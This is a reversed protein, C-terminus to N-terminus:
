VATVVGSPEHGLILPSEVVAEGIRGHQYYHVDSGCTGVALVKILVERPGPEPMPRDHLSIAGVGDLVAARMAREAMGGSYPPRVLTVRTRRRYENSPNLRAVPQYTPNGVAAPRTAASSASMNGPAVLTARSTPRAMPKGAPM